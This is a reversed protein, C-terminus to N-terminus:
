RALIDRLPRNNKPAPYARLIRGDANVQVIWAAPGAIRVYVNSGSRCFDLCVKYDIGNVRAIGRRFALPTGGITGSMNAVVNWVSADATDPLLALPIGEPEAQIEQVVERVITRPQILKAAAVAAIAALAAIGAFCAFRGVDCRRILPGPGGGRASADAAAPQRRADPQAASGDAEAATMAATPAPEGAAHDLEFGPLCPADASVSASAGTTAETMATDPAGRLFAVARDFGNSSM